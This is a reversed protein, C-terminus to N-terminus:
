GEAMMGLPSSVSYGPSSELFRQIVMNSVARFTTFIGNGTAADTEFTPMRMKHNNLVFDLYNVPAADPSNRKNYQLVLPVEDLSIGLKKLNEELNKFSQANEEMRTWESDATFIIGDADRLVLKRPANFQVNGTVTYVEFRIKFDELLTVDRPLFEFVLTKDAASKLTTVESKTGTDLNAHLYNLTGSKGGFPPGYLVIKFQVEKETYNTIPM